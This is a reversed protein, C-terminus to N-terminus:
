LQIIEEAHLSETGTSEGSLERVRMEVAQLLHTSDSYDSRWLAPGFRLAVNWREQQTYSLGTPLITVKTHGDKEVMEVLRAFGQRFPPSATNETGPTNRPDIDPYAEPFVVLVEGGRLIRVSDKMANRIYSRSEDLTYARAPTKSNRDPSAHLQESRLIMPWDVMFCALEMLSRMWRKRVWDLAVFIHLRRPIVKMLICGDYLHHYHRAVILVPGTRPVYELGEVVLRVKRRAILWSGKQLVVVSIRKFISKNARSTGRLTRGTQLFFVLSAPVIGLFVAMLTPLWLRASLDLVVAFGINAAYMGFPLWVIIRKPDLNARWLFRSVGMFALGTVSWGVLNSIPMGFYPGTQHWIWFHLPLNNSAMAPDLALDWVTLFYTGLVLSWLTVKRNTQVSLPLQTKTNALRRQLLRAVIVSALIYSTFGMYFWSLPISDPVHELIKIGLFSTYSYPGFPFGTSTGLLEMSLSITTSAIFFIITKRPGVLLWGFLLMTAAGFIIHLSGAYGIGFNFVEILYPNWSWLEPHPLMVLLGAIGFMLAALHCLFLIKVVRM